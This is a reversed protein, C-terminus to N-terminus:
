CLPSTAEAVFITLMYVSGDFHLTFNGNHLEALKMAAKRSHRDLTITVTQTRENVVINDIGDVKFGIGHEDLLANAIIDADLQALTKGALKKTHFM